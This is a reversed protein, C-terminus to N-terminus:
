FNKTDTIYELPIIKFPRINDLIDWLNFPTKNKEIRISEEKVFGHADRFDSISVIYDSNFNSLVYSEYDEEDLMCISQFEFNRSNCYLEAMKKSKFAKVPTNTDYGFFEQQDYIVIYVRKITKNNQSALKKM